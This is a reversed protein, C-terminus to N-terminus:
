WPMHVENKTYGNASARRGSRWIAPPWAHRRRRSRSTLTCRGGSQQLPAKPVSALGGGGFGGTAAGAAAGGGAASVLVIIGLAVVVGGILPWQVAASLAGVVVGAIGIIKEWVSVEPSFM